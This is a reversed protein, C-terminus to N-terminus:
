LTEKLKKFTKKRSNYLAKCESSSHSECFDKLLALQNATDQIDGFHNLIKKCKKIQKNVDHLGKDHIFDLTYRALKCDIRVQHIKKASSKHSLQKKLAIANQFQNLAIKILAENSLDYQLQNLQTISQHLENKHKDVIEIHWREQYLNNRYQVLDSLLSPYEEADISMMLVDIERLENTSKLLSKLPANFDRHAKLYIKILSHARRLSVRYKHLHEVDSGSHIQPLLSEANQLLKLLYSFLLKSYM